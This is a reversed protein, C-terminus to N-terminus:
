NCSTGITALVEPGYKQRVFDEVDEIRYRTPSHPSRGLRYYLPGTGLEAWKELSSVSLGLLAAVEKRELLRQRSSPAAKFYPILKMLM